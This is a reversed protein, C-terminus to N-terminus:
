HVQGLLDPAGRPLIRTVVGDVRTRAGRPYWANRRARGAAAPVGCACVYWWYALAPIGGAAVVRATAPTHAPSVPARDTDDVTSALSCPRCGPRGTASPNLM